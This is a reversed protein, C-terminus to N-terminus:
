LNLYVCVCEFFQQSKKLLASWLQPDPAVRLLDRDKLTWLIFDCYEADAVFSQTQVQKYYPSRNKLQLEGDM